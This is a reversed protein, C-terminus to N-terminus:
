PAAMWERLAPRNLAKWAAPVQARSRRAAAAEIAYLQGAVFGQRSTTGATRIWAQATVADQHEGLVTQLAAAAKALERAPRGVVPACAEASYRARKALIRVAHFDQDPSGPGLAKAAKRLPRWARLALRPLVQGAPADADPEFRPTRAAEVLGDLLDLYRPSSMAAVLDVRGREGEAAIRATLRGLASRDRVALAPSHNQLRELLVESDRVKGLEGAIWSLEDRLHGVWVPDLLSGFLRLDSRLRRTAV